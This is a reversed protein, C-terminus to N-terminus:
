SRPGYTMWGFVRVFGYFVFALVRSFPRRWGTQMEGDVVMAAYFRVDCVARQPDGREYGEDHRDWSATVFFTNGFKTLAKRLWAPFWRPGIGNTTM